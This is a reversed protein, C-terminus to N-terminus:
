WPADESKMSIRRKALCESSGDIQIHDSLIDPSMHDGSRPSNLFRSDETYGTEEVLQMAFISRRMNAVAKKQSERFKAL